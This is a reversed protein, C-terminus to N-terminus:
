EGLQGTTCAGGTGPINDDVTGDCDNDIGDCIEATSTNDPVCTEAGAVCQTKGPSCVGPMGTTCVKDLNPFSEDTQQDCDNDLGDCIEVSPNKPTCVNAQGNTCNDVTVQCAGVGCTSTGMDDVVGNCDDDKSNCDEPVPKVEGT